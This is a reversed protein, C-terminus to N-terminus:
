KQPDGNFPLIEIDTELVSWNNLLHVKQEALSDIEEYTQLVAPM